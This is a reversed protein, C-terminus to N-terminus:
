KELLWKYAPIVSISLNKERIVEEENDTIIIGSSINLEEMARFLANLERTRTEFKKVTHAVQILSIKKNEKVLFDVELNNKTKYYYIEKGRRLLELFIVNELLRGRDESEQFRIANRLGVDGAYVKRPNVSQEKLSRSFKKVFYILFPATLYESFREITTLPMKLFDKIRNYSVLSSIHSFYFIALTKLKESERINYRSILDRSIIDEFYNRLLIERDKISRLLVTKPMGGSALYERFLRSVKIKQRILSMADPIEIKHFLLFERFSLPHVNMVLHRGTLVASLESHLLKASSGSVFIDAAKREYLSNVFKEWGPVAQVEDFFLLPKSDPKLYEVFTEYVAQLLDPGLEGIFRPDEFNVYLINNSPVRLEFTQRRIFQLLLTSKGSRRLGVLSVIMGMKWYREMTQIYEERKIGIEPTKDKQWFNWDNLIELIAAKSLM